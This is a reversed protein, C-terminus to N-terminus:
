LESKIPEIKLVKYNHEESNISFNIKDGVAKGILQKALPTLYSIIGQEPKSDWIGMISYTITKDNSLDQIDIKTAISIKKDNAMSYDIIQVKSLLAELEQKQRLLRAHEEKAAKYEFNERLDGHERALAINRSNQPILVTTIHNLDEQKQIYAAQSSYVVNTKIRETKMLNRVDPCEIIFKALISQKSMKDLSCDLITEAVRIIDEHSSVKLLKSVFKFNNSLILDKIRNVIKTNTSIVGSEHLDMLDILKEVLIINNFDKLLSKYTTSFLKKAMWLLLDEADGILDYARKFVDTIQSQNNKNKLLEKLLDEIVEFPAEFLLELYIDEWKDPYLDKIDSCILKQFETKNMNKISQTISSCSEYIAKIDYKTYSLVDPLHTNLSSLTYYAEFALSTNLQSNLEIIKALDEAITKFLSQDFTEKRPKKLQTSIFNLKERFDSLKNYQKLLKDELSVPKNLLVYSKQKKEPSIIYPNTKLLNKTKDWWKKWEKDGIVDAALLDSIENLTAKKTEFSNLVIKVLEVPDNAALDKLKNIDKYKLASIHSDDIKTLATIALSIAMKHNKKTYFDITLSQFDYDIGTIKGIGWSNHKCFSNPRFYTLVKMQKIAEHLNSTTDTIRAVTLIRNLQPFDSYIKEYYSKIKTHNEEDYPLLEGIREILLLADEKLEEDILYPISMNLLVAAEKPYGKKEFELSLGSFLESDLPDDDLLQLWIDEAEQLKKEKLLDRIEERYISIM